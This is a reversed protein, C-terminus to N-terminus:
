WIPNTTVNLQPAPHAAQAAQFTAIPVRQGCQGTGTDNIIVATPNGADNYEVGTVTIAHLSGVPTTGGWLPAADINAIVGQGRSMALGLNDMTPGQVTSPVGNAALIAQRQAANTGGNAAVLPGGVTGGANGSNISQTLLTNENVNAGTSRNILQRSSECGCNNYTQQNSGSTRGTAAATCMALGLRPNGATGALGILVTPLGVTLMGGHATQDTMRAAPLSQIPVPFAGKMIPAPPSAICLAMDTMRAAPQGGILVQVAGAPLVPGGAHPIPPLGPTAM